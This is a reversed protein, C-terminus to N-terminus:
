RSLVAVRGVPDAHRHTKQDGLNRSLLELVREQCKVAVRHKVAKCLAIDEILNGRDTADTLAQARVELLRHIKDEAVHLRLATLRTLLGIVEDDDSVHVPILRAGRILATAVSVVAVPM